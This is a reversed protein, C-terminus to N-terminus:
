LLTRAPVNEVPSDVPQLGPSETFVSCYFPTYLVPSSLFLFFLVLCLCFTTLKVINVTERKCSVIFYFPIMKLHLAHTLVNFM